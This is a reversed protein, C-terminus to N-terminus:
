LGRLDYLVGSKEGTAEVAKWFEDYKTFESDDKFVFYQELIAVVQDFNLRGRATHGTPTDLSVAFVGSDLAQIVKLSKTRNM